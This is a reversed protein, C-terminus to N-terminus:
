AFFSGKRDTGAGASASTAPARLTVFWNANPTDPRPASYGWSQEKLAAMLAQRLDSTKIPLANRFM